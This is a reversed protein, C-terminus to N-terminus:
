NHIFMRHIYTVSILRVTSGRLAYVVWFGLASCPFSGHVHQDPLGLLLGLRMGCM